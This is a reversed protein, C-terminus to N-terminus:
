LTNMVSAGSAIGLILGFTGGALAGLIKTRFSVTEHKARKPTDFILYLVAGFVIIMFIGVVSRLTLTSFFSIDGSNILFYVALMLGASCASILLKMNNASLCTAQHTVRRRAIM